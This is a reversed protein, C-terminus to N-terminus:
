EDLEVIDTVTFTVGVSGGIEVDEDSLEVHVFKVCRLFNCIEGGNDFLQEIFEVTEDYLSVNEPEEQFLLYIDVKSNDPLNNFCNRYINGLREIQSRSTLEVAYTLSQILAFFLNRDTKAKIEGIIPVSAGGSQDVLLLDLGGSGSVGARGDEMMANNTTRYPSIEYDVFGIETGDSAVVAGM